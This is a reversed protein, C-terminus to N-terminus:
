ARLTAVVYTGIVSFGFLGVMWGILRETEHVDQAVYLAWDAFVACAQAQEIRLERVEIAADTITGPGPSGPATPCSPMVVDAGASSSLCLALISCTTIVMGLRM